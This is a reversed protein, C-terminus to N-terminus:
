HVIHIFLLYEFLTPLGLVSFQISSGFSGVPSNPVPQDWPQHARGEPVGFCGPHGSMSGCVIRAHVRVVFVPMGFLSSFSSCM